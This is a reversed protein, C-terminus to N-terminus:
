EKPAGCNPCSHMFVPYQVSCNKCRVMPTQHAHFPQQGPQVPAPAAQPQIPAPPPVYPAPQQVAVTGPAYPTYGAPQQAMLADGLKAYTLILMLAPLVFGILGFVIWIVTDNKADHFRGQDIADIVTKKLFVASLFCILMALLGFVGLALMARGGGDTVYVTLSVIAMIFWVASMLFFLIQAWWAFRRGEAVDRPLWPPTSGHALISGVPSGM